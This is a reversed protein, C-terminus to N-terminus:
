LCPATTGPPLNRTRSSQCSAWSPQTISGGLEVRLILPKAGNFSGAEFLVVM